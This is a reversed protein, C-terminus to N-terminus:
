LCLHSAVHPSCSVSSHIALVNAPGLTAWPSLRPTTHKPSLPLPSLSKHGDLGVYLTRSQHM